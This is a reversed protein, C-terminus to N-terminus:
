THQPLLLGTFCLAADVVAYLNVEGIIGVMYFAAPQGMVLGAINELGVGDAKCVARDVDVVNNFGCVVETRYVVDDVISVSLESFREDFVKMEQKFRSCGIFTSCPELDTIVLFQWVLNTAVVRRFRLIDVAFDLRQQFFVGAPFVRRELINNIEVLPELRNMRKLVAIAPYSSQYHEAFTETEAEHREDYCVLQLHEVIPTQAVPRPYFAVEHIRAQGGLVVEFDEEM